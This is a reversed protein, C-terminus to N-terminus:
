TASAPLPPHLGLIYGGRRRFVQPRITAHRVQNEAIAAVAFDYQTDPSLGTLTTLTVNGVTVDFERSSGGDARVGQPRLFAFTPSILDPLPCASFGKLSLHVVSLISRSLAVASQTHM